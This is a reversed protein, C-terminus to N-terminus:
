CSRPARTPSASDRRMAESFAQATGTFGAETLLTQMRGHLRETEALGWPM